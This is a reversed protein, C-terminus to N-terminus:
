FETAVIFDLRPDGTKVPGLAIFPFGLNLAATMFKKIQFDFGVGSGALSYTSV